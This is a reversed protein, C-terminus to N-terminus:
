DILSKPEDTLTEEVSVHIWGVVRGDDEAVYLGHKRPSLADFRRRAEEADLPYGLEGSLRSVDALDDPAMPRTKMSSRRLPLICPIVAVASSKSRTTMPAPGAPIASTASARAAPTGAARIATSSFAGACEQIM